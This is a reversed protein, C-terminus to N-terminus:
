YDSLATAAFTQNPVHMYTEETSETFQSKLITRMAIASSIHDLDGSFVTVFTDGDYINVVYEIGGDIEHDFFLEIYIHYNALSGNFFISQDPTIDVSKFRINRDLLRDLTLVVNRFVFQQDFGPIFSRKHNWANKFDAFGKVFSRNKQIANIQPSLNFVEVQTNKPSVRSFYSSSNVLNGGTQSKAGKYFLLVHASEDMPTYNQGARKLIDLSKM